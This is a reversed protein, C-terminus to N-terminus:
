EICITPDDNRTFHNKMCQECWTGPPVVAVQCRGLFHTPNTCDCTRNKIYEREDRRDMKAGRIGFSEFLLGCPEHWDAASAIGLFAFVVVRFRSLTQGSTSLPRLRFSPPVFQRTALAHSNALTFRARPAFTSFLKPNKEWPM